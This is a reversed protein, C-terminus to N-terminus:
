SISHRRPVYSPLGECIPAVDKARAEPEAVTPRACQGDQAGLLAARADDALDPVGSELLGPRGDGSHRFDPCHDPGAVSLGVVAGIQAPPWPILALQRGRRSGNLDSQV